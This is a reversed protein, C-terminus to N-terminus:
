RDLGLGLFGTDATFDGCQARGGAPGGIMERVVEVYDHEAVEVGTFGVDSGEFEGRDAGGRQRKKPYDWIGIIGGDGVRAITLSM